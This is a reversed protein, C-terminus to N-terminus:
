KVYLGSGLMWDGMGVSFGIKPEVQKTAPNTFKWRVEGKGAKAVKILEQIFLVGDPDKMDWLSQGKLAPKSPLALNVGKMDYAFIYLEGNHRYFKGSKNQFEALAAEKGKEKAFAAAEEVFKIMEEKTFATTEAFVSNLALLLSLVLAFSFFKM